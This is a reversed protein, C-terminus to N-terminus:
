LIIRNFKRKLDKKNIICHKCIPCEKLGNSGHKHMEVLCAECFRGHGCGPMVYMAVNRSSGDDGSSLSGASLCIKCEMLKDAVAVMREANAARRELLKVRANLEHLMQVRAELQENLRAVEARTWAAHRALETELEENRDQLKEIIMTMRSSDSMGSSGSRCAEEADGTAAASHVTPNLALEENENPDNNVMEKHGNDNDLHNSPHRSSSPMFQNRTRAM